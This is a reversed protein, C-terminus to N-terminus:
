GGVGRINFSDWGFRTGARPLSVGPLYRVLDAIDIGLRNALEASEIVAVSGAVDAVPRPSKTAVVVMPSLAATDAEPNHTQGAAEGALAVMGPLAFVLVAWGMRYDDPM